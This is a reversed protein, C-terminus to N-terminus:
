SVANYAEYPLSFNQKDQFADSLKKKFIEECPTIGTGEPFISVNNINLQIESRSYDNRWIADINKASIENATDFIKEIFPTAIIQNSHM